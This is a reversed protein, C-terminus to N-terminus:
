SYLSDSLVVIYRSLFVLSVTLLQTNASCFFVCICFNNFGSAKNTPGFDSFSHAINNSILTLQGLPLSNINCKFDLNSLKVISSLM